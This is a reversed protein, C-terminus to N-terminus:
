AVPTPQSRGATAGHCFKYKKGSGCPCPENPRVKKGKRKFTGTGAGIGDTGANTSTEQETVRTQIPQQAMVPQARYISRVVDHHINRQLQTFMQFSQTKYVVLPDKQGYAHLGVGQRMEDMATLHDVWLKDIVALLVRREVNRMTEEGFREEIEAYATEADEAMTEFIQDANSGALTEASMRDGPILANYADVIANVNVTETKGVKTHAEIAAELEKEILGQIRDSVDEGHVVQKRDRYIVERHRNMVDDYQVVHKRRDFNHGEVKTQANEISKSIIKHEIPEDEQMGLRDMLSGIRDSGFRRMLDDEVSVFFRSSGPDGQRGARGRLQNDIRRSEHRETGIIHLGGAQRVEPLLKIDTGRGAMNTAITVANTHGAKAVIEAEREHHKANLVQHEIGDRDLLQSLVESKEVSATGVLVPRGASQMTKVEDIVAKFKGSESMFVLDAHDARVMEKNTPIVMVPLNYIRYLEESETEATGTMGALKDYMRFYNQFTITAMTVNQRRVRVGEKAEIAQHLGESYRRGSMMRGTFEDIIVVEGENVIYDKDRKYIAHATLAQELYHTLEAYRDDYISEGEPISALREIKDIGDETLTAARHKAEVEYDRGARLQSVFQAFQYYRDTAAGAQASIILPTRAEDILINDVEDVIGFNLERQVMKGPEVAMNDRLYDFGFENNTGHTIDAEYAERRTVPRLFELREDDSQFEPDYVFASEHQICSASLGLKHYVQGMWQTERKVLYDNVTVLHVGKGSLANLAIPLTAALTKGEGTRMEAIKGQHMVAGGMIQVDFHRMGLARKSAERTLAFSDPLLNDLSEGSRARAALDHTERILEEDSLREYDAELNNVETAIAALEGIERQSGSFVKKLFSRM